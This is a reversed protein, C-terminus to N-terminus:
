ANGGRERPHFRRHAERLDTIEIQTYRQTTSALAHGLMEQLHRLGAGRAMMHTACCHRLVHPTVVKKLGARKAAQRVVVALSGREFPRGRCTLFVCREEPNQLLRPRARCLYIDLWEVAADGLPVIRSKACKGTRIFLERRELHVDGLVLDRLESNRIATSYLVEMVARDRIGLVDSTDPASLLQDVEAESLLVHPLTSPVKPLPIGAALDVLIFQERVLFRLFAKVGSLRSAQTSWTLGKGQRELNFLHCRYDDILERNMQGLSVIGRDSLFALFRQLEYRYGEITRRSFNRLELYELFRSEWLAPELM